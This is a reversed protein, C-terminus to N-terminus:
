LDLHKNADINLWFFVITVLSSQLAMFVPFIKSNKHKVGNRYEYHNM